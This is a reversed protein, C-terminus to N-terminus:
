KRAQDAKAKGGEAEAQPEGKVVEVLGAAVLTDVMNDPLDYETDVTKKPKTGYTNNHERTSRVKIM